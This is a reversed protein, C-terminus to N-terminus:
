WVIWGASAPMEELTPTAPTCAIKIGKEILGLFWLKRKYEQIGRLARSHPDPVTTHPHLALNSKRRAIGRDAFLGIM